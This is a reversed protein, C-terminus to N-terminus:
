SAQFWEMKAFTTSVPVKKSMVEESTGPSETQPSNWEQTLDAPGFVTCGLFGLSKLDTM